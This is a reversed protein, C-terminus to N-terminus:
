RSGRTTMWLLVVVVMVVSMWGVLRWVSAWHVLKPQPIGARAWALFQAWDADSAFFARPLFIASLDSNYLLVTQDSAQVKLFKSWETRLTAGASRLELGEADATGRLEEDKAKSTEFARREAIRRYVYLLAIAVPVVLLWTPRKGDPGPKLLEPLLGAGVV